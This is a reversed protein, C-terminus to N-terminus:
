FLSVFLSMFLTRVSASVRKWKQTALEADLANWVERSVSTAGKFEPLIKKVADTIVRVIDEISNYTTEVSNGSIPYKRQKMVGNSGISLIVFQPYEEPKIGLSDNIFKANGGGYYQSDPKIAYLIWGETRDNLSQWFDDDKLVKVIYPNRETYAIFGFINATRYSKRDNMLLRVDLMDELPFM